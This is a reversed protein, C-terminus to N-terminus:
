KGLDFRPEADVAVGELLALVDDVVVIGISREAADVLRVHRPVLAERGALGAHGDRLAAHGLVRRLFHSPPAGLGGTTAQRSGV